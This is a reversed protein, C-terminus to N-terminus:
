HTWWGPAGHIIARRQRTEVVLGDGDSYARRIPDEPVITGMYAGDDRFWRLRKKELLGLGTQAVILEGGDFTVILTHLADDRLVYLRTDTLLYLYRETEVIRRPVSGIDHARVADGSENVLM